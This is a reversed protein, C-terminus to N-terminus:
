SAYKRVTVKSKLDIYTNGLLMRPVFPTWFNWRYTLTYITPSDVDTSLQSSSVQLANADIFGMTGKAFENRILQVDTLNGANLDVYYREAIGASSEMTMNVFFILGYEITGLLLLFLVPAVFAFEILTAGRNDQLMQVFRSRHNKPKIQM